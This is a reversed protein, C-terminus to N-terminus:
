SRDLLVAAEPAPKGTKPTGIQPRDIWRGSGPKGFFSGNEVLLQGRLFVHSPWGTITRGVWPNYGVNDHLDNKCFTRPTTDDWIVLDADMGLAIQGKDAL